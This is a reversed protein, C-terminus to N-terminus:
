AGQKREVRLLFTLEGNALEQQEVGIFHLDSPLLISIGQGIGIRSWQRQLRKQVAQTPVTQTTDLAFGYSEAAHDLTDQLTQRPVFKEVVDSMSAISVAEQSECLGLVDDKFQQQQQPDPLTDALEAIVETLMKSSSQSDPVRLAQLFAEVWFQSEKGFRDLAYVTPSSELLLAGKDILRPNIGSAHALDLVGHQDIITLFEDRVEAKFIGIGRTEGEDGLGEFLIVLVDGESIKPHQSQQYLHQAIQRSLTLFDIEERFFQRSLTYLVNHQLHIPHIFQYQRKSDYIGHLYGELILKEVAPSVSASRDSLLLTEQRTPNGVRHVALCSVRASQMM